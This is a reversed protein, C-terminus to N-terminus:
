RYPPIRCGRYHIDSATRRALISIFMLKTKNFHNRWSPLQRLFRYFIVLNVLNAFATWHWKQNRRGPSAQEESIYGIVTQWLGPRRTLTVWIAAESLYFTELIQKWNRQCLWCSGTMIWLHLNNKELPSARTNLLVRALTACYDSIIEHIFM